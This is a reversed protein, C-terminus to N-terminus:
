IRQHVEKAGHKARWNLNNDKVPSTMDMIVPELNKYFGPHKILYDKHLNFIKDYVMGESYKSKFTRIPRGGELSDSM